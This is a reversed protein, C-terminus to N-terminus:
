GHIERFRWEATAGTSEVKKFAGSSIGDREKLFIWLDAGGKFVANAFEGLFDLFVIRAESMQKKSHVPRKRRNNVALVLGGVAVFGQRQGVGFM